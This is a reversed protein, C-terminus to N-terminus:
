RLIGATSTTAPASMESATRCSRRARASSSPMGRMYALASSISSRSRGSRTEMQVQGVSRGSIVSSAQAAPTFAM